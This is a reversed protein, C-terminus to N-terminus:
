IFHPPPTIIITDNFSIHTVALSDTGDSIFQLKFDGNFNTVSGEPQGLVSIHTYPVPLSDTTSVVTGTILRNQNIQCWAPVIAILLAFAILIKKKM